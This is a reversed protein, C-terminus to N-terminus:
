EWLAVLGVPMFLAAFRLSDCLSLLYEWLAVLGAFLLLVCGGGAVYRYSAATSQRVSYRCASPTGRPSCYRSAGQSQRTTVRTTYRCSSPTGSPSCSASAGQSQRTTVQVTYRCATPTGRPSCSASAGQSQRTTVQITYRCLSPTGRPSCSASAAQSETSSSTIKCARGGQFGNSVTVLTGQACSYSVAAAGLDRRCVWIAAISSSFQSSGAPCSLAAARSEVKECSSSDSTLSYGTPCSARSTAAVGASRSSSGWFDGGGFVRSLSGSVELGAAGVSADVGDLGKVVVLAVAFLLIM